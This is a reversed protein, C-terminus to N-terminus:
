VRRLDNATQTDDGHVGGNLAIDVAILVGAMDAAALQHITDATGAIVLAITEDRDEGRLTGGLVTANRGNNRHATVHVAGLVIHIHDNGFLSYGIETAFAWQATGFLNDFVTGMWIVAWHEAFVQLKGLLAVLWLAHTSGEGHVIGEQLLSIHSQCIESFIQFLLLDFSQSFRSSLDKMSSESIYRIIHYAANM